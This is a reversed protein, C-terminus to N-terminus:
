INMIKNSLEKYITQLEPTESLMDIHKNIVNLDKRAAPGTQAEAPSIALIKKATELILPKIVESDINKSELLDFAIKYMYNSFNCAFVAALHIQGRQESSYLKVVDSISHAIKSLREETNPTNGEILCPITRFDVEKNKSFTQFPYFVGHNPFRNLLSINMSGATHVVIGNVQPLASIIDSLASDSVAIIYLEGNEDVQKLDNIATAKVKQALLEANELKRSYIQKICFQHQNLNLALQTALNGAGILIIGEKTM